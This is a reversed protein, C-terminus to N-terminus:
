KKKRLFKRRYEEAVTDGWAAEELKIIEDIGKGKIARDKFIGALSMIDVTPKIVLADKEVTMVAKQKKKLGLQKRFKAPITVQGQSTISVFEMM